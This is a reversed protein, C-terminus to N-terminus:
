GLRMLEITNSQKVVSQTANGNGWLTCAMSSSSKALDSIEFQGSPIIAIGGGEVSHIYPRLYNAMAGHEYKNASRKRRTPEEKVELEGIRHGDLDIIAYKLKLADLMKIARGFTKKQIDNM